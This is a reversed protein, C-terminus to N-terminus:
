YKCSNPEPATVVKRVASSRQLASGGRNTSVEGVSGADPQGRETQAQSQASLGPM